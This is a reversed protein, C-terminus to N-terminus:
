RKKPYKITGDPYVEAPNGKRDMMAVYEVEWIVIKFGKKKMDEVAKKQKETAKEKKSKVEAEIVNLKDTIDM